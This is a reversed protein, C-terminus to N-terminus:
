DSRMGELATVEGDILPDEAGTGAGAAQGLPTGSIRVASGIRARILSLAEGDPDLLVIEFMDPLHLHDAVVVSSLSPELSRDIPLGDITVSARTAYELSM